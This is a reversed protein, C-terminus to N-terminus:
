SGKPQHEEQEPGAQLRYWGQKIEDANESRWLLLAKSAQLPMHHGFPKGNKSVGLWVEPEKEATLL